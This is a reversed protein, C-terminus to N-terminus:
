PMKNGDTCEIVCETVEEARRGLANTLANDCVSNGPGDRAAERLDYRDVSGLIYICYINLVYPPILTPTSFTQLFTEM